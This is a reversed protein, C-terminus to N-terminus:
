LQKLSYPHPRPDAAHELLTKRAWPAACEWNDYNPEHRVFLVALERWGILEDLFKAATSPHLKQRAAAKRVALAITLPGIHGFHLWPTLRSTGRLEPHNRATEYNKLDLRAFEDLRRMAAHTGGKFSDVPSVTRDLKTFGATIDQSIPYSELEEEPRWPYDPSIKKPAVLFHPLQANLYPRFHHLM